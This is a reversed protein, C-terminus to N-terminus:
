ICIYACLSYGQAVLTCKHHFHPPFVGLNYKIKVEIFAFNFFFHFIAGFFLLSPMLSHISQSNGKQSSCIQVSFATLSSTQVPSFSLPFTFSSVCKVLSPFSSIKVSLDSALDLVPTKVFLFFHRTFIAYSINKKVQNRKMELQQKLRQYHKIHRIKIQIHAFALKISLKAFFYLIYEISYNSMFIKYIIVYTCYMSLSPNAM